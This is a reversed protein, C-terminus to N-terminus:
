IRLVNSVKPPGEPPSKTTDLSHCLTVAPLSSGMESLEMVSLVFDYHRAKSVVNSPTPVASKCCSHSSPMASAECMQAMKKCCIHEAATMSRGPTMCAALPQGFLVLVLAGAVFRWRLGGVRFEAVAGSFFSYIPSETRGIGVKGSGLCERAM